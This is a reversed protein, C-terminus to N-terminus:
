LNGVHAARRDFSAILARRRRGPSGALRCGGQRCAADKRGQVRGGSKAEERLKKVTRQVAGLKKEVLAQSEQKLNRAPRQAAAWPNLAVHMRLASEDPPSGTVEKPPSHHDKVNGLGACGRHCVKREQTFKRETNTRKM